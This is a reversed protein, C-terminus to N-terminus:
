LSIRWVSYLPKDMSKKCFRTIDVKLYM